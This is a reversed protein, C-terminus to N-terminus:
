LWGGGGTCTYAEENYEPYLREVCSCGTHIWVPTYVTPRAINTAILEERLAEWSYIDDKLCIEKYNERRLIEMEPFDLSHVHLEVQLPSCTDYFMDMTPRFEDRLGPADCDGAWLDLQWLNPFTSYGSALYYSDDPSRDFPRGRQWHEWDRVEVALRQIKACNPGLAFDRLLDQFIRLTDLSFDIWVHPVENKSWGRRKVVDEGLM